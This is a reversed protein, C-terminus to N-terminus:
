IWGWLCLKDSFIVDQAMRVEYAQMCIGGVVHLKKDYPGGRIGAEWAAQCAADAQDHSMYQHQLDNLTCHVQQRVQQVCQEISSPNM